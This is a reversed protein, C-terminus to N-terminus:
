KDATPPKYKLEALDAADVGGETNIREIVKDIAANWGLSSAYHSVGRCSSFYGAIRNWFKGFETLDVQKKKM